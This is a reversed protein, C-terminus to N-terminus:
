QSYYCDQYERRWEAGLEEDTYDSMYFCKKAGYEIANEEKVRRIRAVLQSDSMTWGGGLLQYHTVEFSEWDIPDDKFYTEYFSESNLPYDQSM